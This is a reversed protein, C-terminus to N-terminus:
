GYGASLAALKNDMDAFRHDMNASLLGLKRDVDTALVDMRASQEGFRAGLYDITVM